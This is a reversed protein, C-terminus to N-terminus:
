FPAEENAAEEDAAEGLHAYKEELPDPDINVYLSKCYASTGQRGAVDYNYPRICLDINSPDVYDLMSVAGEDLYTIKKGSVLAVKPPNKRFVLNVKIYALPEEYEDSPEKYKIPWGLAEMKAARQPSLVVCFNRKGEANYQSGEGRFNRYIMRAGEIFEVNKVAM